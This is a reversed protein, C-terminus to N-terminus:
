LATENRSCHTAVLGSVHGLQLWCQTNCASQELLAKKQYTQFCAAASKKKKTKLIGELNHNPDLTEYDAFSSLYGLSLLGKCCMIRYINIQGPIM